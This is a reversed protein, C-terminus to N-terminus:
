EESGTPYQAEKLRRRLEQNALADVDYGTKAPVQQSIVPAPLNAGSFQPMAARKPQVKAQKQFFGGGGGGGGGGGLQQGAIQMLMMTMPDM